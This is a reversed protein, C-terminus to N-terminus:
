TLPRPRPRNTGVPCSGYGSAWACPTFDDMWEREWDRDALLEYEITPCPEGPMQESWAAEIRELMSEVGELDDYLGTLITDEM